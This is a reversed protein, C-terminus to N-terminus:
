AAIKVIRRFSKQDVHALEWNKQLNLWFEPSAGLARSLKVAMEASIGRKGRCVENITKPLVGIHQALQSQSVGREELEDQLVEGPHVKITHTMDDRIKTIISLKLKNRRM